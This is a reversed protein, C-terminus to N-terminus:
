LAEQAFAEALDGHWTRFFAEATAADLPRAFLFGQGATATSTRCCTSSM